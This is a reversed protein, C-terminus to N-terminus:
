DVFQLSRPLRTSCLTTMCSGAPNTSTTTTTITTTTSSSENGSESDTSAESSAEAAALAAAAAAAKAQQKAKKAKAKPNAAALAAKEQAQAQAQAQAELESQELTKVFSAPLPEVQHWGPGWISASLALYKRNAAAALDDRQHQMSLLSPPPPLESLLSPQGDDLSRPHSNQDKKLDIKPWNDSHSHYYENDDHDSISSISSNDDTMWSSMSCGMQILSASTTATAPAAANPHSLTPVLIPSLTPPPLTKNRPCYMTKIQDVDAESDSESVTSSSSSWSCSPLSSSSSTTSSFSNSRQSSRIFPSASTSWSESRQLCEPYPSHPQTPVSQMKSTHYFRAQAHATVKAIAASRSLPTILPQPHSYHHVSPILSRSENQLFLMWEDGDHKNHHANQVFDNTTYDHQYQNHHALASESVSYWNDEM